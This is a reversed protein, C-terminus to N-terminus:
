LNWNKSWDNFGHGGFFQAGRKKGDLNGFSGIGGTIVLTKNTFLSM